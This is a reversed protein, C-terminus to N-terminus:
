PQCSDVNQHHNKLHDGVCQAMRLVGARRPDRACRQEDPRRFRAGDDRVEARMAGHREGRVPQPSPKM